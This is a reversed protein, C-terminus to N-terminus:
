NKDYNYYLFHWEGVCFDRPPHPYSASILAYSNRLMEQGGSIEPNNHIETLISILLGTEAESLNQGIGIFTLGPCNQNRVRLYIM